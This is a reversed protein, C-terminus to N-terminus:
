FPRTVRADSNIAWSEMAPVTMYHLAMWEVLPQGLRERATLLSDAAARVVQKCFYEADNLLRLSQTIKKTM